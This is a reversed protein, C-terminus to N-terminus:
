PDRDTTGPGDETGSGDAQELADLALDAAKSVARTVTRVAEYSGAVVADHIQQVEEAPRAIGPFLKLVEFPRRSTELHVQEIPLEVQVAPRQGDTPDGLQAALLSKRREIGELRLDRGVNVM